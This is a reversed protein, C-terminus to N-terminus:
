AQSKKKELYNSYSQCPGKRTPGRWLIDDQLHSADQSYFAASSGDHLIMSRSNIGDWASTLILHNIIIYM